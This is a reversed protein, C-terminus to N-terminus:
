ADHVQKLIHLVYSYAIMYVMFLVLLSVLSRPVVARVYRSAFTSHLHEESDSNTALVMINKIHASINTFSLFISTVLKIQCIYFFAFSEKM